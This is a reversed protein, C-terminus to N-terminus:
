NWCSTLLKAKTSIKMKPKEFPPLEPLRNEFARGDGISKRQRYDV